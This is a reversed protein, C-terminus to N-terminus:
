RQPPVLFNLYRYTYGKVARYVTSPSVGYQNALQLVSLRVINKRAFMVEEDTLIRKGQKKFHFTYPIEERPPPVYGERALKLHHEKLSLGSSPILKRSGAYGGPIETSEPAERAGDDRAGDLAAGPAPQQHVGPEARVQGVELVQGGDQNVKDKDSAKNGMCPM